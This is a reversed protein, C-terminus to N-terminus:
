FSQHATISASLDSKLKAELMALHLFTRKMRMLVVVESEFIQTVVSVKDFNNLEPSVSSSPFTAQTPNNDNDARKANLVDSRCSWLVHGVRVIVCLPSDHFDSHM